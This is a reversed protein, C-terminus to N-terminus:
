GATNLCDVVCTTCLGFLRYYFICVVLTVSKYLVHLINSFLTPVKYKGSKRGGTVKSRRKEGNRGTHSEGGNRLESVYNRYLTALVNARSTALQEELRGGQSTVGVSENAFSGDSLTESLSTSTNPGSTSHDIQSNTQSQDMTTQTGSESLGLSSLVSTNTNNMHKARERQETSKTFRVKLRPDNKATERLPTIVRDRNSLMADDGVTSQDISHTLTQEVSQTGNLSQQLTTSQGESITTHLDTITLDPVDPSHTSDPLVSSSIEITSTGSNSSMPTYLPTAKSQIHTHDTAGPTTGYNLTLPRPGHTAMFHTTYSPQSSTTNSVFVRSRTSTHPTSHHLPSQLLHRRRDPTQTPTTQIDTSEISITTSTSQHTDTSKSTQVSSPSTKHVHVTLSPPLKVPPVPKLLETTSDTDTYSSTTHSLTSPTHCHPPHTIHTSPTHHSHLTHPPHSELEERLVESIVSM